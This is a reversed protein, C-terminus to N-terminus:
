DTTPLSSKVESFEQLASKNPTSSTKCWQSYVAQKTGKQLAWPLVVKFGHHFFKPKFWWWLHNFHLFSLIEFDLYNTVSCSVPWHLQLGCFISHATDPHTTGFTNGGLVGRNKSTQLLSELDWHSKFTSHILVKKQGKKMPTSIYSLGSPLATPLVHSDWHCQFHKKSHGTPSSQELHLLGIWIESKLIRGKRARLTLFSSSDM